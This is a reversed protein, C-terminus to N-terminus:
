LVINPETDTQGLKNIRKLIQLYIFKSLKCISQLLVLSIELVESKKSVSEYQRRYKIKHTKIPFDLNDMRSTPTQRVNLSYSDFKDCM